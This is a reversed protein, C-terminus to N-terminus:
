SKRLTVGKSTTQQSSGPAAANTASNQHTTTEQPFDPLNNALEIHGYQMFLSEFIQIGRAYDEGVSDGREKQRSHLNLFIELAARSNKPVITSIPLAKRNPEKAVSPTKAKMRLSMQHIALDVIDPKSWCTTMDLIRASHARPSTRDSYMRSTDCVYPYRLESPEEGRKRGGLRRVTTAIVRLIVEANWDTFSDEAGTSLNLPNHLWAIPHFEMPM